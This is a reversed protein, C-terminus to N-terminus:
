KNKSKGKVELKLNTNLIKDAHDNVLCDKDMEQANNDIERQIIYKIEKVKKIRDKYVIQIKNNNDEAKKEAVQVKETWEKEMKVYDNTVAIGGEMYLGIVILAIGGYKLLSKYAEGIISPIFISIVIGIIGALLLLHVLINPIYKFFLILLSIM